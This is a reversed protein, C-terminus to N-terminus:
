IAQFQRTVKVYKTPKKLGNREKVNMDKQVFEIVSSEQITDIIEPHKVIEKLFEFTLGINQEVTEKNTM